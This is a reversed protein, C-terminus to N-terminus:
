LPGVCKLFPGLTVFQRDIQSEVVARLQEMEDTPIKIKGQIVQLIGLKPVFGGTQCLLHFLLTLFTGLQILIPGFFNM